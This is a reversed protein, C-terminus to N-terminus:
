TPAEASHVGSKPKTLLDPHWYAFDLAEGYWVRAYIREWMASVAAYSHFKLVYDRGAESLRDVYEPQTALMRLNEKIQEVPTNVIPCENLGTYLRHVRYYHDDSLNSMVAKGLSMGEIATLGYGHVFQEAIVDAEAMARKVESNPVGELLRLTIPCGEEQLERCAAIFFESGKLGRHNPAHVVRVTKRPLNNTSETSTTKWVDTDIPYYHTTLLDWRPMTESHFICGVIFDANRSFYEIWSLTRQQHVGLHPYSMMLGQRFVMSQIFSPAAVDSGYPMVVVKKGALHLIQVELHRLPTGALFGGDFFYHFVDFRQLLWWFAFYPRILPGLSRFPRFRLLPPQFFDDLVFDFDDRSNIHYIRFVFTKADYGIQEMAEKMYKISIIPTPGYVLRPRIRQQQRSLSDQRFAFARIALVILVPVAM